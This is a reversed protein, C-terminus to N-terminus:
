PITELDAGSLFRNLITLICIGSTFMQETFKMRRGGKARGSPEASWCLGVGAIHVGDMGLVGLLGSIIGM